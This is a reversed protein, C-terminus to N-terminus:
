ERLYSTVIRTGYSDTEFTLMGNTTASYEITPVDIDYQPDCREFDFELTSGVREFLGAFEIQPIWPPYPQHAAQAFIGDIEFSYTNTTTPQEGYYQIRFPTYRGPQLTGGTPTPPTGTLGVFIELADADIVPPDPVICDFAPVTCVGGECYGDSCETRDAVDNPQCAASGNCTDQDSCETESSGCAAGTDPSYDSTSREPDCIECSNSANLADADVCNDGIVCGDCVCEDADEDCRRDSPCPNPSCFLSPEGTTSASGSSGGDGGTGGSTTTVTATATLAATMTMGGTGGDGGSGGSTTTDGGTGGDGSSGGSTTTSGSSGGEGSSGGSTTTTMTTSSADGGVGGDGSSGGSTSVGGVGASGSVGGSSSGGTSVSAVGQPCSDQGDVCTGPLCQAVVEFAVGDADCRQLEDGQCRLASPTCGDEGQVGRTTSSCAPVALACALPILSWRTMPLLTPSRM